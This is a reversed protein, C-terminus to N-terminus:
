DGSVKAKIILDGEQLSYAIELGKSVRGFVTYRGDLHRNNELNIFFQSSGTDPGATAVGVTGPEHHAAGWEERITGVNYQDMSNRQGAQAVFGPIVRHWLMGDLAGTRALEIFNHAAYPAGSIMEIEIEGRSTELVLRKSTSAFAVDFSATPRVLSAQGSSPDLASQAERVRPSEEKAAVFKRLHAQGADSGSLMSISRFAKYFSGSQLWGAATDIAKIDQLRVLGELATVALWPNEDDVFNWLRERIIADADPRAALASLALHKFEVSANILLAMLYMRSDTDSLGAMARVAAVAVRRERLHRSNHGAAIAMLSPAGAEFQSLTKILPYRQEVPVDGALRGLIRKTDFVADLGQLRSLLYAADFGQPGQEGSLELLTDFDLYPLDAPELAAYTVSQMFGYLAAAKIEPADTSALVEKVLAGHLARNEETSIFALARLAAAKVPESDTKAVIGAVMQFSQIDRCNALGELTAVLGDNKETTLYPRIADCAQQGMLGWLRLADHNGADVATELLQSNVARRDITESVVARFDTEDGYAPGCVMPGFVLFLYKLIIPQTFKQLMLNGYSNDM